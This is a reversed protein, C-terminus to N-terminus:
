TWKYLRVQNDALACLHQRTLCVDVIDCQTPVKFSPTQPTQRVNWLEIQFCNMRQVLVFRDFRSCFNVGHSGNDSAIIYTELNKHIIKSRSLVINISSGIFTQILNLSVISSRESDDLPRTVLEYM